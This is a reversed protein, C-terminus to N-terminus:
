TERQGACLLAEGGAGGRDAVVGLWKIDQCFLADFTHLLTDVNVDMAVLGEVTSHMALAQGYITTDSM